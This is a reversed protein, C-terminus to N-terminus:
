ICYGFQVKFCPDFFLNSVADIQRLAGGSLVTYLRVYLFNLGEYVFMELNM